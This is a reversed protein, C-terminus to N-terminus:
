LLPRPRRDLRPLHIRSLNLRASRLAFDRDDVQRLEEALELSRRQLVEVLEVSSDQDEFTSFLAGGFLKTCSM